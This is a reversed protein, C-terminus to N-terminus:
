MKADVKHCQIVYKKMTSIIRKVQRSNEKLCHPIINIDTVILIYNNFHKDVLSYLVKLIYIVGINRLIHSIIVNTNVVAM